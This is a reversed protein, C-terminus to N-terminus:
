EAAGAEERAEKLVSKGALVAKYGVSVGMHEGESM